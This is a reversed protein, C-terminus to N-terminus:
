LGVHERVDKMYSRSVPIKLQNELTVQYTHNFWPQIEDIANVNILYSRHVRLFAHHCIKKEIASLPENIPYERKKTYITTEGNEVGVAIIEEIKVLFIRDDLQVPIAKLPEEPLEHVQQKENQHTKYAKTVAQQIRKQEFPKLVYDKANLEFAKIAYDDYATAFVILPPNKVQKIKEALTLGSENTLHIDLFILDVTKKLMQELAEEISDAETVSTVEECQELLYNLENRALPEDDVILTHM